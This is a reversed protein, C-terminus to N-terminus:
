RLFDYYLKEEKFISQMTKIERMTIDCQGFRNEELFHNFVRDIVADYNVNQESNQAILQQVVNVIADACMLVVTEKSKTSMNKDSYESLIRKVGKPFQQEELIDPNTQVLRHYYGACKLDEANLSLKAAIRECFYATHISHMYDNRSTKRYEALIENETDSLELYKERDKFIVISSFLKLIGLLLIGSIIVNIVPIMFLEVSLRENALLVVGATQCVLLCLLSLFLKGGIQFSDNLHRFLTVAFVGALYYLFFATVDGGGLLMSQTLLVSAALIGTSMNSFLSLLVFVAMYPWGAVPLFACVFAFALGILFCLWFRYYHEGNDYALEKELYAQRLHFGLIMVGAVGFVVNSLVVDATKQNWLSIGGMGLGTLLMSLLEPALNRWTIKPKNEEMNREAEQRKRQKMIM